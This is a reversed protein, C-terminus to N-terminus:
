CYNHHYHHNSYTLHVFKNHKSSSVEINCICIYIGEDLPIITILSGVDLYDMRLNSYHKLIEKSLHASHIFSYKNSILIPLLIKAVDHTRINITEIIWNSTRLKSKTKKHM